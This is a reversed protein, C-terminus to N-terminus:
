GFALAAIDIVTWFCLLIRAQNMGVGQQHHQHSRDKRGEDKDTTISILINIIIVKHYHQILVTDPNQRM